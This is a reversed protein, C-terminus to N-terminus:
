ATLMASRTVSLLAVSNVISVSSCSRSYQKCFKPICFGVHYEVDVRIGGVNTCGLCFGHLM